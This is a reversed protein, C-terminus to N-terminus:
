TQEKHFASACGWAAAASVVYGIAALLMALLAVQDASLADATPLAFWWWALVAVVVSLSNLILLRTEHGVVVLYSSWFDSVRLVAIALFMPLLGRAGAYAAFWNAIAYDLLSWLPLAVAVGCVLLGLSARVSISFASGGGHSAFRRALMPFLSANIVVQVSQAVMLVTWAFAYQAFMATPLWHAALWRDANIVGFGLSAVALLALASWWATFPLRRLALRVMASLQLPIAHFQWRLLWGALLLSLAAETGLVVAVPGGAAAVAGGAFSVVLARDLNQRAFQMSQGRSRSDVTAVLFLQQSLGHVLALVLLVPSLGALSVDGVVVIAVAAAACIFAVLVCQMLLVGGAHERRRVIMVPLERQLLSQLGLCALMCFSSSVLLGASYLAFAPVDLLRAMVLLRVLMLGMALALVPAYWLQHLRARTLGVYQRLLMTATVDFLGTWHRRRVIIMQLAM